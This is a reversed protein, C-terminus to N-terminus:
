NYGRGGESENLHANQGCVNLDLGFKVVCSASWLFGSFYLHSLHSATLRDCCARLTWLVVCSGDVDFITFRPRTRRLFLKLSWSSVHGIHLRLHRVRTLSLAHMLTCRIRCSPRWLHSTHSRQQALLKSKFRWRSVCWRGRAFRVIEHSWQRKFHSCM